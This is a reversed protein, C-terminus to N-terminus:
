VEINDLCRELFTKNQERMEDQTKAFDVYDMIKKMGFENTGKDIYLM